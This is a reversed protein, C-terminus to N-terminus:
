SGVPAPQGSPSSPAQKVQEAATKCTKCIRPRQKLFSIKGSALCSYHVFEDCVACRSWGGRLMTKDRYLGQNCVKCNRPEIGLLMPEWDGGGNRLINMPRFYLSPTSPFVLLSSPPSAQHGGISACRAAESPGRQVRAIPPGGPWGGLLCVYSFRARDSHARGIRATFPRRAVGEPCVFHHFHKSARQALVSPM